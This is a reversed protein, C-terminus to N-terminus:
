GKEIKYGQGWVVKLYRPRAPDIEIKERLRRIHVAVTNETGYPDGGWVRTYIENPSFVKGPEQMLLKLIGYETKTLSVEEGDVHVEKAPDNVHIGGIVLEDSKAAVSGLMTYRRISSRVRATLEAPLFPKTIYDDAGLNLGLIKDADESKATLFIVPVNSFKRIETLAEIGDMEPMMIDLLILCIDAADQMTQIAERGNYAKIIEYGEAKLYIELARVIDKEDDCVLIKNM